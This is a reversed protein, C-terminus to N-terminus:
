EKLKARDLLQGMLDVGLDGLTLKETQAMPLALLADVGFKKAFCRGHYWDDNARSKVMQDMGGIHSCEACHRWKRIDHCTRMPPPPFLTQGYALGSKMEPRISALRRRM